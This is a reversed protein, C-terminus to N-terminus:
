GHGRHGRARAGGTVSSDLILAKKGTEAQAPSSGGLALAFLLIGLALLGLGAFLAGSARERHTM